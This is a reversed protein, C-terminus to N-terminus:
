QPRDRDASISIKFIHRPIVAGGEGRAFELASEDHTGLWTGLFLEPLFQEIPVAHHRVDNIGV